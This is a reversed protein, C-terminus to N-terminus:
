NVGNKGRTIRNGPIELGLRKLTRQKVLYFRGAQSPNKSAKEVLLYSNKITAASAFAITGKLAEAAHHYADEWTKGADYPAYRILRDREEKSLKPSRLVEKYEAWVTKQHERVYKVIDWRMFHKLDTQYSSKPNGKRGIGTAFKGAFQRELTKMMANAVWSSFPINGQKCIIIADYLASLNGANYARECAKLERAYIEALLSNKGSPM